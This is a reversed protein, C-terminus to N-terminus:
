EAHLPPSAQADAADPARDLQDIRALAQLRAGVEERSKPPTGALQEIRSVLELLRASLTQCMAIALGPQEAMLELVDHREIRILRSRGAASVTAMRTEGNFLAMEGFFEGPGLEAVFRGDRTVHVGGDIVVYMCDGM